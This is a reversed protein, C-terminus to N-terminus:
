GKLIRAPDLRLIRLAPLVSAAIAFALLVGAVTVFTLPDRPGVGWLLSGILRTTGWALVLGIAIGGGALTLGAGVLSRITMASTAGLALRVGFERTREVVTQAILGYLGIVALLLAVGAFAGVLTLLLRQLATARAQVEDIRIVATTPLQSDALGIARRLAVEASATNSTRVTWSPMFWQHVIPAFADSLQAAPFFVVPAAELPGRVM